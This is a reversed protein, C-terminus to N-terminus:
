SESAVRARALAVPADERTKAKAPAHTVNANRAPAPDGLVNPAGKRVASWTM